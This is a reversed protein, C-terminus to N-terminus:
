RQVVVMRASRQGLSEGRIFYVGAPVAVHRSSQLNWALDHDGARIERDALVTVLRGGADFVQVVLQGDLPLHVPVRVRSGAPNPYPRGLLGSSGQAPAEEVDAPNLACTGPNTDGLAQSYRVLDDPGVLGDGNFDYCLNGLVPEDRQDVRGDAFTGDWDTSRVHLYHRIEIGNVWIYVHCEDCGGIKPQFVAIGNTDTRTPVLGDDGPDRCLRTCGGLVIEVTHDALPLGDMDRVTISVRDVDSAEPPSGPSVFVTNHHDWPDVVCLGPNVWGSAAARAVPISTLLLFAIWSPRSM